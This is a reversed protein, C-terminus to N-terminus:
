AGIRFLDHVIVEHVVEDPKEGTFPGLGHGLRAGGLATDFEPTAPAAAAAPAVVLRLAGVVPM